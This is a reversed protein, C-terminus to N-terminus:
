PPVAGHLVHRRVPRLLGLRRARHRGVALALRVALPEEHPAGAYTSCCHVSDARHQVAKVSATRDRMTRVPHHPRRGPAAPEARGGEVFPASIAIPGTCNITNPNECGFKWPSIM